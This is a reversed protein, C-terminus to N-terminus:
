PESSITRASSRITKEAPSSRRTSRASRPSKRLVRQAGGAREEDAAIRLLTRAREWAAKGVSRLDHERLVAFCCPRRPM